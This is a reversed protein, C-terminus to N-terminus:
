HNAFTAEYRLFPARQRDLYALLDQMQAASLVTQESLNLVDPRTTTGIHAQQPTTLVREAKFTGAARIDALARQLHQKLRESLM